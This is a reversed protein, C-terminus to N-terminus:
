DRTRGDEQHAPAVEKFGTLPGVAPPCVRIMSANLATDYRPATRYFRGKATILEAPIQSSGDRGPRLRNFIRCTCVISTRIQMARDWSPSWIDLTNRLAKAITRPHISSERFPRYPTHFEIRAILIRNGHVSLYRCPRLIGFGQICHVLSALPCDAIYRRPRM